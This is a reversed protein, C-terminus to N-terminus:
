RRKSISSRWHLLLDLCRHGKRQGLGELGPTQKPISKMLNKKNTTRPTTKNSKDLTKRLTKRHDLKSRSLSVSAMAKGIVDGGVEENSNPTLMAFVSASLYLWHAFLMVSAGVAATWHLNYIKAWDGTFLLLYSILVQSSSYFYSESYEPLECFIVWEFYYELILEIASYLPVSVYKLLAVWHQMVLIVIPNLIYRSPPFVGVVLMSIIFTAASHHLLTGFGNCLDCARDQSPFHSNSVYTGLLVSSM